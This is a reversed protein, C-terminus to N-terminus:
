VSFQFVNSFSIFSSMCLHFCIKHEHIQLDFITLIDPRGQHDMTLVRCKWPLPSLEIGPRPVLIWM